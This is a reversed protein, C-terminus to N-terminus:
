NRCCHRIGWMVTKKKFKEFIDLEWEDRRHGPGDSTPTQNEDDLPRHTKNATLAREVEQKQNLVINKMHLYWSQIQSKLVEELLALCFSSMLQM